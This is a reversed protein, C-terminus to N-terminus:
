RIVIRGKRESKMYSLVKKADKSEPNIELAKGIEEEAEKRLGKNLYLVSLNIRHYINGPNLATLTRFERLAEDLLGLKLSARALNVHAPVHGPKIRVAERFENAAEELRGRSSYAIGLYNHPSAEHPNKGAEDEYLRVEDRWVENRLFTAISLPPVILSFMVAALTGSKLGARLRENLYGLALFLSSVFSLMIGASPLYVRHENIADHIPIVSSEVSLTIFFWLVGFSAVTLLPAKKGLTRIFIYFSLSIVTLLFLSSALVWPEFISTKLPYYYDFQQGSPWLLLRLYRMIVTSQTILYGWRPIGTAESLKRSAMVEEIENYAGVGGGGGGWGGWGTQMALSVPVILLTLFFPALYKVRRWVGYSRGEEHFMAYEILAIIFPLTLGIEKTKMALVASLLSAAYLARKEGPAGKGSSIGARIYSLASALYFLTSLSTFRQTIYTVAQTQLPHSLFILSTLLAVPLRTGRLRDDGLNNKFVPTEFVSLVLYFLLISNIVHVIVNFLHFGFPDEGGVHYNLAFSLYAMYRPGSTDLLNSLDRIYPNEAAYVWDDFVFPGYLANSWLALGFLAIIFPILNVRVRM